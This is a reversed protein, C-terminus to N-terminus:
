LPALDVGIREIEPISRHEFVTDPLDLENAYAALAPLPAMGASQRRMALMEEVSPNKGRSDRTSRNSAIPSDVIPDEQRQLASGSPIIARSWLMKKATGDDLLGMGMGSLLRNIVKQARFPDAKLHGNDFVPTM